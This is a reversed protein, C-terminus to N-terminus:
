RGWRGKAISSAAAPLELTQRISALFANAITHYGAATQHLGDNSILTLDLGFAQYVDVLQVGKSAALGKISDNFPPVAEYQTGRDVPDFGNPNQPPLTALFVKMGRSKADDVMRALGAIIEPISHSGLDNVGEMLLVADYAGTSTFSVFRPFTAPGTVTEGPRGGNTVQPFQATYLAALKAQLAGPYTDPAPFQVRPRVLNLATFRSLSMVSNRGDEGWTLSDGFALFRTVSLRPPATVTVSFACSDTRAVQDTATCTVTTVGIPFIAGSAPSCSVTTPPTGGTATAAGYSVPLPLGSLSSLAVPAPCFARPSEIVQTPRLPTDSCGPLMLM